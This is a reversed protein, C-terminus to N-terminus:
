KSPFLSSFDVREFVELKGGRTANMVNIRHVDCYEKAVEYVKFTYDMEPPMGCKRPDYMRKDPYSNQDIHTNDDSYNCDAGLLYIEKFGMLVALQLSTYVSTLGDNLTYINETHSLFGPLSRKFSKSYDMNIYIADAIDYKPEGTPKIFVTTKNGLVQQIIEGHCSRLVTPDQVTYYTPRWNTRDFLMYIRNMGFTYEDKIKNLDEMLLSPGNAVIFCREGSFKGKLAYLERETSKCLKVIRPHAIKYYIPRILDKVKKRINM